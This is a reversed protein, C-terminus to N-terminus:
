KEGRKLLKGQRRPKRGASAHTLQFWLATGPFPPRSARVTGSGTMTTSTCEAGERRWPWATGHGSGRPPKGGRILPSPRCCSPISELASILLDSCTPENPRRLKFSSSGKPTGKGRDASCRREQDKAGRRTDGPHVGPARRHQGAEAGLDTRGKQSRVGSEQSRVGRGM